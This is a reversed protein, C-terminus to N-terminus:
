RGFGAAMRWRASVFDMSWRENPRSPRPLPVRARSAVKKRAKTRVELGELGYLRYVRKANVRWGERKLLVTLRRYGFRVRVAALERQRLADQSDRTLQYRWTNLRVPILRAARTRVGRAKVASWTALMSDSNARAVAVSTSSWTRETMVSSIVACPAINPPRYCAILTLLADLPQSRSSTDADGSMAILPPRLTNLYPGYCRRKEDLQQDAVHRFLGVLASTHLSNRKM